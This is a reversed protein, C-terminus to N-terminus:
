GVMKELWHGACTAGRNVAEKSTTKRERPSYIGRLLARDEGLSDVLVM